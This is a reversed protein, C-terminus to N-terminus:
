PMRYPQAASFGDLTSKEKRRLLLEMGRLFYQSEYQWNGAFQGFLMLKDKLESYPGDAELSRMMPRETSEIPERATQMIERDRSPISVPLNEVTAITQQPM